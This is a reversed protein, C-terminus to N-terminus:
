AATSEEAEPLQFYRTIAKIQHRLSRYRAEELPTRRHQKRLAAAEMLLGQRIALWLERDSM